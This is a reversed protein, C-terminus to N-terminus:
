DDKSFAAGGRGAGRRRGGHEVTRELTEGAGRAGGCRHRMCVSDDGDDLSYGLENTGNEEGGCVRTETRSEIGGGALALSETESRLSNMFRMTRVEATKAVSITVARQVTAAACSFVGSQDLTSILTVFTEPLM